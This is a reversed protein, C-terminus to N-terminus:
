RECIVEADADQQTGGHVLSMEKGNEDYRDTATEGENGFVLFSIRLRANKTKEFSSSM